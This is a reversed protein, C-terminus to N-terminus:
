GRQRQRVPLPDADRRRDSSAVGAAALITGPVPSLVPALAALTNAVNVPDAALRARWEPASRDTVRGTAQAWDVPDTGGRPGRPTTAM